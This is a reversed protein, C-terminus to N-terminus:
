WDSSAGRGGFDGGGFGALSDGSDYGGFGGSGRGGWTSRRMMNGRVLWPLFGGGSSWRFGRPGGARMLLLLLIVGGIALPWPFADFRGPRIRRPLRTDVATNRAKAIASGLTEAAAMVAEGHRHQRLAPRMERLIGTNLGDPLLGDLTHGMALRYRHDQIALLLLIGEHKAPQVLDLPPAVPHPLSGPPTQEIVLFAQYKEAPVLGWARALTNAVDEIPEGQLSAVTVLAMRLGTSQEISSCYSEIRAKTSADVVEAFDSLCGQPRLAKWDVAWAASACWALVVGRGFWTTM